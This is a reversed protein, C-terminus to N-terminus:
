AGDALAAAAADIRNVDVEVITKARWTLFHRREISVDAGTLCSVLGAAAELPTEVTGLGCNAPARYALFINLKEIVDGEDWSDPSREAQGRFSTGHDGTVLFAPGGRGEVDIAILDMLWRNVCDLQQRYGDKLRAVSASSTSPVFEVEGIPPRRRCDSDLFYPPHPALLHAVILDSEDNAVAARVARAIEVMAHETSLQSSWTQPDMGSAKMISRSLSAGVLDDTLPRSRCHDVFPGCNMGFWGSEVHTYRYGASRFSRVLINDGATIAALHSIDRGGVLVEGPSNVGSKIPYNIDLISPISLITTTYPAWAVPPVRFGASELKTDLNDDVSGLELERALSGAYADLVLFVLDTKTGPTAFVPTGNREVTSPGDSLGTAIAQGIPALLLFTVAWQLVREIANLRRVRFVIGFLLLTALSWILLGRAPGFRDVFTGGAFFMLNGLFLWSGILWGFRTLRGMLAAVCFLVLATSGVLLILRDPSTVYPANGAWTMAPAYALSAVILLFSRAWYRREVPDAMCLINREVPM